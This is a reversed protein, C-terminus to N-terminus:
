IKIGRMRRDAFRLKQLANVNGADAANRAVSKMHSIIPTEGNEVSQAMHEAAYEEFGLGPL